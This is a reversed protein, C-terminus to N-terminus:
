KGKRIASPRVPSLGRRPTDQGPTEEGAFKGKGKWPSPNKSGKWGKWSKQGKGQWPAPSPSYQPAILKSLRAEERAEKAAVTQEARSTASPRESPLLELHQAAKWSSHMSAVEIAKFRQSLLDMLGPLNGQILLDLARSITAAERQPGSASLRPKLILHFFKAYIPRLQHSEPEGNVQNLLQGMEKMAMLSLRGPHKQSYRIIKNHDEWDDSESDKISSNSDESDEERSRRKRKRKRSAMMSLETSSKHAALHEQAAKILSEALNQPSVVVPQVVKSLRKVEQELAEMRNTPTALGDGAEANGLALRPAPGSSSSARRGGGALDFGMERALDHVQNAAPDVLPAPPFTSQKMEDPSFATLNKGWEPLRSTCLNLSVIHYYTPDMNKCPCTVCLHFLRHLAEPGHNFFDQMLDKRLPLSDTGMISGILYVQAKDQQVEIVQILMKVQETLSLQVLLELQDSTHFAEPLWHHAGLTAHALLKARDSLVEGVRGIKRKPVPLVKMGRLKKPAM